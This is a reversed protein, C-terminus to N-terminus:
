AAGQSARIHTTGYLAALAIACRANEAIWSADYSEKVKSALNIASLTNTMGEGRYSKLAEEAMMPLTWVKCLHLHPNVFSETVLNGGADIESRGAIALASGLATIHGGAV